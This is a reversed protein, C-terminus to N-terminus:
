RVGGGRRVRAMFGKRGGREQIEELRALQHAERIHAVLSSIENKTHICTEGGCDVRLDSWFTDNEVLLRAFATIWEAGRNSSIAWLIAGMAQAQAIGRLVKTYSDPREHKKEKRRQEATRIMRKTAKLERLLQKMLLELM